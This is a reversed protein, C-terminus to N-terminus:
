RSLRRLADRAAAVQAQYEPPAVKIFQEYDRRADDKKGLDLAARAAGFCRKRM